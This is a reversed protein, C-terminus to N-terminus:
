RRRAADGRHQGPRAPGRHARRRGRRPLVGRRHGRGGRGADRRRDGPEPRELRREVVAMTTGAEASVTTATSHTPTSRTRTASRSPRIQPGSASRTCECAVHPRRSPRPSPTSATATPATPSCWSPRRGTTAAGDGDEPADPVAEVGSPAVAPTVEAIADISALIAQGIATGRSATLGDIASIVEDHETTPEVVLAAFGAFAVLGVRRGDGQAEVFDSAAQKAAGLRNPSVDTSCMSRSTDIALLVTAASSPVEQSATPRAAAVGLVVLGAAFLGVPVRRRWTSSPPVAARVLSLNSIRLTDRRRRRLAWWRFALLAPVALLAVLALPWAFSM